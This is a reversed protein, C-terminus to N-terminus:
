LFGANGGPLTGTSMMRLGLEPLAVYGPLAADRKKFKALVAGLHPHDTRSPLNPNNDDPNPNTMHRATLSYHTMHTHNHNAHPPSNSQSADGIPRPCVASGDSGLPDFARLNTDGARCDCDAQFQRSDRHPCETKPGVRRSAISRRAFLGLYM